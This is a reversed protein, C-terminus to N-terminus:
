KTSEGHVSVPRPHLSLLFLRGSTGCISHVAPFAVHFPQRSSTVFNVHYCYSIERLSERARGRRNVSCKIAVELNAQLGAHSLNGSLNRRNLFM